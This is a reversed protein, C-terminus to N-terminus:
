ISISSGSKIFQQLLIPELAPDLEKGVNELLVWKGARIAVELVRMLNPDSMKITEMGEEIEKGM